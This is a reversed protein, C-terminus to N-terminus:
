FSLEGNEIDYIIKAIANENNTVTIVDAEAKVAPVANAVAIGIKAEKIMSIDNENDGVAVTKDPSVGLIQALKHLGTGKSAGSPLIEYYHADSQIFDFEDGFDNEEILARVKKIIDDEAVFVVKKIPENIDRHNTNDEPLHEIQRYRDTRFNRRSFCVREDTCVVYGTEPIRDAVFDLIDLAKKDLYLGWVMKNKEFDYIGAGNFACIPVNPKIHKLLPRAGEPVRGTVFTFFGGEKKFYEIAKLNESSITKDTSLLTEDLDTCLLIGDFKGM